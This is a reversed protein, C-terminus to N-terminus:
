LVNYVRSVHRSIWNEFIQKYSQLFVLAIYVILESKYSIHKRENWTLTEWFLELIRLAILCGLNERSSEFTYLLGCVAVWCCVLFTFQLLTVLCAIFVYRLLSVREDLWRQLLFAIPMLCGSHTNTAEPICRAIHTLWITM